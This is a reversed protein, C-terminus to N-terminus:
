QYFVDRDDIDIPLVNSHGMLKHMITRALILLRRPMLVVPLAILYKLRQINNYAFWIDVLLKIYRGRNYVKKLKEVSLMCILDFVLGGQLETAQYIAKSRYKDISITQCCTLWAAYIGLPTLGQSNGEYRKVIEQKAVYVTFNERVSKDIFAFNPHLLDVLRYGKMLCESDFKATKFIIAPFFTLGNYYLSGKEILERSTGRFGREWPAQHPSGIYVLDAEENVIASSVDSIDSFDFDDDDCVIWTYTSESLEVARLYNPNGGINKKHRIIRLRPFRDCYSACVEPTRDSSCNDLITIKCEAFPSEALQQLTKDLFRDRNWTILILELKDQFLM